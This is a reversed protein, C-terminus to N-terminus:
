LIKHQIKGIKKPHEYDLRTIDEMNLSAYTKKM